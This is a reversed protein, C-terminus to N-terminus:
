CRLCCRGTAASVCIIMASCVSLGSRWVCAPLRQRQAIQRQQRPNLVAPLRQQPFKRRQILMGNLASDLARSRGYGYNEPNVGVAALWLPHAFQAPRWALQHLYQVDISPSFAM